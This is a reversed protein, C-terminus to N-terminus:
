RGSPEVIEIYQDRHCIRWGFVVYREVHVLGSGAIRQVRSGDSIEQDFFLTERLPSGIECLFFRNIKRTDFLYPLHFLGSWIAM